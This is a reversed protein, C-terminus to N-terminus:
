FGSYQSPNNATWELLGPLSEVFAENAPLLAFERALFDRIEPSASEVDKEITPRGDIVSVIHELDHSALYDGGGRNAFAELKTAL